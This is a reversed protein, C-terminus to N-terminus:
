PASWTHGDRVADVVTRIWNVVFQPQEKHIEQGSDTDTIHMAGPVLRALKAEAQKQAADVVYGFNPPTEPEVHRRRDNWSSAPGM